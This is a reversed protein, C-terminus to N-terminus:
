ETTVGDFLRETVDAYVRLHCVTGDLHNPPSYVSHVKLDFKGTNILNHNVGAPVIIAYGTEVETTVGNIIIHGMGKDVGLFQDQMHVIFGTEEGPKLSVLLLQSYKGTYLVRRFDTNMVSAQQLNQIYGHM